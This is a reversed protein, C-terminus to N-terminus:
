LNFLAGLALLAGKILLDVCYIGIGFLFIAGVVVRTCVQLEAKATWTVKHFEEKLERLYSEARRKKVETVGGSQRTKVDMFVGKADSSTM